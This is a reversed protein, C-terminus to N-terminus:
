LFRPGCLALRARFSFELLKGRLCQLGQDRLLISLRREGQRGPFLPEESASSRPPEVDAGGEGEEEVQAWRGRRWPARLPSCQRAKAEEGSLVLGAM